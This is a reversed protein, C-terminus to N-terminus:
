PSVSASSAASSVSASSSSSVDSVSSDGSSPPVSKRFPDLLAPIGSLAVDLAEPSKACGAAQELLQGLALAYKDNQRAHLFKRDRDVQQAVEAM